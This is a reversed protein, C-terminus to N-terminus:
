TIVPLYARWAHVYVIESAQPAIELTITRTGGTGSVPLGAQAPLATAALPTTALGLADAQVTPTVAATVDRMNRLTFYIEAGAGLREVYVESDSATAHTVPQWGHDGLPVLEFGTNTIVDGTMPLTNTAPKDATALTAEPARQMHPSGWLEKVQDGLMDYGSSTRAITSTGLVAWAVTVCAFIFVIAILPRITM